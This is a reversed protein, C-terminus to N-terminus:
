KPILVINCPAPNEPHLELVGHAFPQSVIGTTPSQTPAAAPQGLVSLGGFAEYALWMRGCVEDARNTGVPAGFSACGQDKEAVCSSFLTPGPALDSSPRSWRAQVYQEITEFSYGDASLGDIISALVDRTANHTDHMLVVIGEGMGVAPAGLVSQQIRAMKAEYTPADPAPIEVYGPGPSEGQAWEASDTSDLTWMVNLGHLPVVRGVSAQSAVMVEQGEPGQDQEAGGFWPSGYPPRFLSLVQPTAGARVLAVNVLLENEDLETDIQEATLIGLDPHNVTHSGIVHGEDVERRLVDRFVGVGGDAQPYTGDLGAAGKIGKANVFFTAHVGRSALIDLFEDTWAVPGDDFTLYAVHPPLPTPIDPYGVGIPSSPSFEPAAGDGECAGADTALGAGQARMLTPGCQAGDPVTVPSLPDDQLSLGDPTAIARTCAAVASLWGFGLVRANM